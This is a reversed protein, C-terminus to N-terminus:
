VGPRLGPSRRRVAHCAGLLGIAILTMSAPEPIITARFTAPNSQGSNFVLVGGTTNVPSTTWQILSGTGSLPGISSLMDWTAFSPSTPGNYLDLGSVSGRSFGVIPTSQNVFTRTPVTFMVSGVGDIAIEASSHDIFWGALFGGRASTDGVANITFNRSDFPVSNLSGSGVGSHTLLIPEADVRPIIALTIVLALARCITHIM